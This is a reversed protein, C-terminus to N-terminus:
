QGKEIREALELIATRTITYNARVPKGDRVRGANTDVAPLRGEEIWCRIVEICKDFIDSVEATGFFQKGGVRKHILEVYGTRAQAYFIDQEVYDM